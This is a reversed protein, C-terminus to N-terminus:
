SELSIDVIVQQANVFKDDFDYAIIYFLADNTNPIAFVNSILITDQVGFEVINPICSVCGVEYYKIQDAPNLDIQVAVSSDDNHIVLPEFDGIAEAYALSTCFVFLVSLLMMKRM